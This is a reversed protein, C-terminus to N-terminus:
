QESNCVNSDMTVGESGNSPLPKLPPCEDDPEGFHVRYRKGAELLLLVRSFLLGRIAQLQWSTRTVCISVSRTHFTKGMRGAKERQRSFMKSQQTM